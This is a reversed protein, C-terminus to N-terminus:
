YRLREYKQNIQRCTCKEIEDKVFCQHYKVAYSCPFSNPDNVLIAQKVRSRATQIPQPIFILASSGRAM